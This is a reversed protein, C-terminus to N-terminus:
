EKFFIRREFPFQRMLMDPGIKSVANRDMPPFGHYQTTSNLITAVLASCFLAHQNHLPNAVERLAPIVQDLFTFAELADGVLGSYDYDLGQSALLNATALMQSITITTIDPPRCVMVQCKLNDLYKGLPFKAVGETSAEVGTTQGTVVWTHSPIWRSDFDLEGIREVNEIVESIVSGKQYEFMIDGDFYGNGYELDM